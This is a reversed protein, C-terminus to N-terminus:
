TTLASGAACCELRSHLRISQNGTYTGMRQTQFDKGVHLIGQTNSGDRDKSATELSKYAPRSCGECRATLRLPASLITIQLVAIQDENEPAAFQHQDTTGEERTSRINM